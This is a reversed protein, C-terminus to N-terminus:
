AIRKKVLSRPDVKISVGMKKLCRAVLDIPFGVGNAWTGKLIRVEFLGDEDQQGFGGARNLGKGTKIYNEIQDSTVKPIEYDTRQTKVIKEKSEIDILCVATVTTAIKGREKYLMERQEKESAPKEVIQNNFVMVADSGIVVGKKNQRAVAEAKAQALRATLKEPNTERIFKEDIDAQVAVFPIKLWGMMEQRLGSQSALIVKKM